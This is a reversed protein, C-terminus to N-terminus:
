FMIASAAPIEQSRIEHGSKMISSPRRAKKTPEATKVEALLGECEQLIAGRRRARVASALDRLMTVTTDWDVCADTISVGRELDAPGSAPVKQAGAKLNSEIMVGVIGNDGARVQDGVDKAVIPQNNHDKQSNGLSAMLIDDTPIFCPTPVM